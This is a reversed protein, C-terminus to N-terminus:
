HTLCLKQGAQVSVFHFIQNICRSNLLMRVHIKEAEREELVVVQLGTQYYKSHPFGFTVYKLGM